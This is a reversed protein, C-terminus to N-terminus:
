IRLRVQNQAILRQIVPNDVHNSLEEGYLEIFMSAKKPLTCYCTKETPESNELAELEKIVDKVNNKTVEVLKTNILCIEKTESVPPKPTPTVPPPVNIDEPFVPRSAGGCLNMRFKGIHGNWSPYFRDKGINLYVQPVLYHNVNEFLITEKRDKFQVYGEAKRTDRNYSYFIFHWNTQQQKQPVIKALNPDGAGNLNKYSYTAFAYIGDQAPSVWAALTRDGLREANKNTEEKNIHLRFALHWQEMTTQKWKFWGSLSYESPFAAAPDSPIELVTAKAVEFKKSEQILVQEVAKSCVEKPQPNCALAFKNLEDVTDLHAGAGIKFVARTLQGNITPYLKLDSGGIILRLYTPKDHTVDFTVSQPEKGTYKVFGVAQSTISSYSFYIYTWVGEIDGYEINKNLNWNNSKYDNTIFTYAGQGQWIALLRDGKEVNQYQKNVTLRSMFYWPESKGQYMPKPHRSLYRVWYSYGYERIDKLNEPTAEIDALPKVDDYASDVITEDGMQCKPEPLPQPPEVPIVPPKPLEPPNGPTFQPNYPDQCNVFTVDAIYGNFAPYFQDKGILIRLIPVLYHNVNPFKVDLKGDKFITSGYAERTERNYQFTIYHWETHKNQHKIVQASNPQGAGFMNTYTYTAFAYLQQDSLWVALTRDGLLDANKNSKQDNITIRFALHWPEQKTPEWKYWGGIGYMTPFPQKEDRVHEYFEPQTSEYKKIGEILKSESKGKCDPEPRPNCALVFKNFDDETNVFSGAGLKLIPSSIQGNFGPYQKLDSGGVILRLFKPQDHKADIVTFSTKDAVRVIGVAQGQKYSFHIYTWVGEIDGYPIQKNINPNGSAVDNTIFTYGAQGLWIALLRDGMRINDYPDNNTLRSIFYWPESAGKLLSDPWRTLWRTWFGYGYEIASGLKDETVKLDVVKDGSSPMDGIQVQGSVCKRVVEPEQPKPPQVPEEPKTPPPTSPVQPPKPDEPFVPTFAGGCLQLRLGGIHGNFAPYFRDKGINVFVSNTLYHNINDMNVNEKREKWQLFGVVQRKARSYGLFVFHWQALQDKYPVQVYKNPDGEGNLNTYTYTTIAYNGNNGVFAGLTRDGLKAANANEMGKNQHLRIALHWPEMVTSRWKFWGSISYEDPFAQEDPSVIENVESTQAEFRKSKEILLIEKAKNCVPLPQPNCTLAFKRFQEVTEVFSGSGVKIVASTFQGNFGPYLSGQTGGLVFQLYDPKDHTAAVSVTQPEKNEYQIWAVVKGASTYSFHVFTWTAEIDGVFAPRGVVTNFNNAKHDNTIFAYDGQAQYIALLRDGKKVDDFDKNSSLRSVFYWPARKGQYMPVPHRTMFRMWFQYGYERVDQLQEPKDLVLNILPKQSDFASDAIAPDGKQCIPEKQPEPPKVPVEPQKPVEPQGPPKYEPDYAKECAFFQVNAIYGNYAPYFQDKGLFIKYLPALYHNVEDIYKVQRDGKTFLISLVKKQERSYAMYIYHWETHKNQHETNIYKNPNGKGFNDDYTYTAFHYSGTKSLFTTLDRDGLLQDNKNHKQGNITVRFALHWDEQQTPTWLFWGGIAYNDPFQNENDAVFMTVESGKNFEKTSEILNSVGRGKKCDPEPLPNCSLAYKQVDEPSGIFSGPGIKLVPRTFQGNFGPYLKLDNGGLIFRLKKPAEHTIGGFEIQQTQKNAHVFAVAKKKLPSFSFHIYTWVGEIDKYPQQKYLNPNSTGKDNTIFTYGDKSLFVALLRDGMKINDYPDNSTLRSVFYWPESMGEFLQQPHRTLWRSWFGYGYEIVDKLAEDPVQIDAVPKADVASSSDGIAKQGEICKQMVEPTKIIPPPPSVVVEPSPPKVPPKPPPKITPTKPPPEVSKSPPPTPGLPSPSPVPTATRPFKPDYAGNCLDIRFKGIIGNWSPYHDDKALNISFRQVLFHNVNEFTREERAEKFHVISHATKQKFSYGFYVFTWEQIRNKHQIQNMVNPNGEGFLNNYSYTALLVIGDNATGIWAALDRDGLNKANNNEKTAFVRFMLHWPEQKELQKWKFWGSVSYEEPFPSELTTKVTQVKATNVNYRVAKHILTQKARDTCDLKPYPNCKLSYDFLELESNVYAGEGIKFVPNTFQGNFGPYSFQKGGVVLRLYTPIDHTVDLTIQQVKGSAGFKLLAVSKKLRGSYSFYVYSWLGEIDGTPINQNVNPNRSAKDLSTFHYGTDYHWIALVRDGMEADNFKQNTTLRSVFYYTNKTRGSILEDPYRSLWRLWFGYGYDTAGALDKGEIVSDAVAQDSSASMDGVVNAGKVCDIVVQPTPSPSKPKPPPQPTPEKPKPTPEKPKPTPEKPKPSPEKPPKPSPEKPPKPSPEKPPEPSPEKPPKPTPEKPKPPIIIPKIPEEPEPIIPKPDVPIVPPTPTNDCQGRIIQIKRIEGEINITIPKQCEEELELLDLLLVEIMKFLMECCAKRTQTDTAALVLNIQSKMGDIHPRAFTNPMEILALSDFKHKLMYLYQLNHVQVFSVQVQEEMGKKALMQLERLEKIDQDLRGTQAFTLAEGLKKLGEEADYLRSKDCGYSEVDIQALSQVNILSASAFSMLGVLVLLVAVKNRM